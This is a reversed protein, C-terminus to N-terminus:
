WNYLIQRATEGVYVQAKGDHKPYGWSHILELEPGNALIHVVKAIVVSTTLDDSVYYSSPLGLPGDKGAEVYIRLM